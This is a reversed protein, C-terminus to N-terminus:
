RSASTVIDKKFGSLPGSIEWIRLMCGRGGILATMENSGLSRLEKPAIWIPDHVVRVRVKGLRPMRVLEPSVVLLRILTEGEQTRTIRLPYYLRNTPFRYQIAEKTKVERALKVVDFVFWKFGDHLYEAVVKKMPEPISPNDVGAQRLYDEVWDVFGRQDLVQTVSIEHSGIEDHFTVQGAPSLASRGAGGLGGMAGGAGPQSRDLKRNILETANVFFKFDGKAVKPESPLPLVQLVKTPESAHLDTSLLLIEERGNFGIAARQNPEFIVAHRNFPIGGCDAFVLPGTFVLGAAVLIGIRSMM